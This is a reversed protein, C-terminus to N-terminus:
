RLTTALELLGNVAFNDLLVLLGFVILPSLDIGFRHLGDPLLTRVRHLVPETVRYVFRLAPNGWDTRIWSFIVRALIIWTYLSIAVSLLHALGTLISALASM